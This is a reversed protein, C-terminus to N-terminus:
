MKIPSNGAVLMKIMELTIINNNSVDWVGRAWETRQSSGMLVLAIGYAIRGGLCSEWSASRSPKLVGNSVLSFNCGYRWGITTQQLGHASQREPRKMRHIKVSTSTQLSSLDQPTVIIFQRGRQEPALAYQQLQQLTLQRAHQDLFVDYEDM